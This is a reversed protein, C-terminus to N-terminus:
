FITIQFIEKFNYNRVPAMTYQKVKEASFKKCDPHQSLFNSSDMVGIESTARSSFANSWDVVSTYRVVSLDKSRNNVMVMVVIRIMM